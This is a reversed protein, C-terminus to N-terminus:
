NAGARLEMIHASRIVSATPTLVSETFTLTPLGITDRADVLAVRLERMDIARVPQGAQIANTYAFPPLAAFARVCQIMARLDLFHQARIVTVISDQPSFTTALDPTSMSSVNGSGDTATMAFLLSTDNAASVWANSSTGPYTGAVEWENALSTKRWLTYSAAGDVRIWTVGIWGAYGSADVAPPGWGLLVYFSHERQTPSWVDDGSYRISITHPGASPTVQFDAMNQILPVTGLLIDNEYFSISGTITSSNAFYVHFRVPTGALPTTSSPDTSFLLTPIPKTITQTYSVTSPEYNESGPYDAHIIHTGVDLTTLTARGEVLTVDLPTDGDRLTIKATELAIGDFSNAILLVQVSVARRLAQPNPSGTIHLSTVGKAVDLHQTASSPLYNDDGAYVAVVEHAGVTFAHSISAKGDKDVAIIGLPTGDIKFTVGGTVPLATGKVYATFTVAQAYRPTNTSATLTLSSFGTPDETTYTTLIDIDDASSKHLILDPSGNEDMDAFAVSTIGNTRFRASSRFTGDGNGLYVTSGFAVDLKGDGDVDATAVPGGLPYNPVPVVTFVVPSGFTGDGNGFRMQTGSSTTFLLDLEDDGNFDALAAVKISASWDPIFPVATFQGAGDSLYATTSSVFDARGNGNLDGVFLDYMTGSTGTMIGAAFTGDGHGRHLVVFSGGAVLIDLNSDGDFDALTIPAGALTIPIAPAFHGTGVGLYTEGEPPSGVNSIVVVDNRGDKNVDGVAIRPLGGSDRMTTQTIIPASLRGTGDGLLVALDVLQSGPRRQIVVVDVHGDDNMDAATMDSSKLGPWLVTVTENTHFARYSQFAANANGRVFSLSWIESNYDLTVFDIVGDRDFDGAVVQWASPGSLFLEPAHFTGNASGRLLSVTSGVTGAALLDLHGDSDVDAVAISSAEYGSVYRTAPGLTGDGNGMRVDIYWGAAIAVDPIDDHNFDAVAIGGSEFGASRTFTGDGNSIAVVFVWGDILLDSRGDGNLDAVVLTMAQLDFPSTIASAFHGTGDGFYVRVPNESGWWNASGIAIDAFSDGNFDGVAAPGPLPGTSLTTGLTFSGDGNGLLVTATQSMADTVVIDLHGDRNVDGVGPHGTAQTIPTIVPASFPGTGNSLFVALSRAPDVLLVDPHDDGNFDATLMVSVSDTPIPIPHPNRFMPAASMSLGIACWIITLLRM